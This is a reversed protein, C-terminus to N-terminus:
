VSIVTVSADPAIRDNAPLPNVEMVVGRAASLFAANNERTERDLLRMVRMEGDSRCVLRESKGRSGLTDTSVRMTVGSPQTPAVGPATALYAYLARHDRRAVLRDIEIVRPTRETDRAEHCWDGTRALMPCSGQHLCPAVAHVGGSALLANRLQMLARTTFKLAPEIIVLPARQAWSRVLAITREAHVEELLLENVATQCLILDTEKCEVAFFDRTDLHLALDFGCHAAATRVSREYARAAACGLEVAHIEVRVRQTPPASKERASGLWALFGVSTAGVGAGFDTIRVVPLQALRHFHASRAAAADLAYGVKPADSALFYECKAALHTPSSQDRVLAARSTTYLDSLQAVARALAEDSTSRLADEVAVFCARRASHPLRARRPEFRCGETEFVSARDLQAVRASHTSM